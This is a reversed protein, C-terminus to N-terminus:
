TSHADGGTPERDETTMEMGSGGKEGKGEKQSVTVLVGGGGLSDGGREKRRGGSAWAPLADHDVKDGYCSSDTDGMWTMVVKSASHGM